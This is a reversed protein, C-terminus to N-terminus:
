DLPLLTFTFAPVSGIEFPRGGHAYSSGNPEESM